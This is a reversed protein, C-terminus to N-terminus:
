RWANKLNKKLIKIKRTTLPTFSCYLMHGNNKTCKQLIINDRPNKKMKEFNQNKPKNHTFHYHRWANKWKKLIKIKRTTLAFFPGFHPFCREMVSWMELVMYIHNDNISYIHLIIFIWANKKWKKLIKYSLLVMLSKKMKEFNQNESNNPSYCPLFCDLWFSLFNQRDCEKDRCGNVM